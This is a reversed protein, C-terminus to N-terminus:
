PMNKCFKSSLCSLNKIEAKKLNLKKEVVEAHEFPNNNLIIKKFFYFVLMMCQADIGGVGGFGGLSMKNAKRNEKM